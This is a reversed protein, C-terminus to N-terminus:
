PHVSASSASLTAVPQGPTYSELHMQLSGLVPVDSKIQVILRHEDDTFYVEAKGGKGFLGKTQFTPQVVVTNFMGAPTTITEKRLVKLVVPNGDRKFYRNFTYTKGVELPLIRALYIFSIEDLPMDTHLEGSEGNDTRVWRRKEPFFEFTRHREYRIEKQDQKFRRTVLREVDLWSQFHDNVKAFLVGGKVRMHLHYTPRGHVTDIAAVELSGKGVEGFPSVSVRYTLREGPGFPVKGPTPVSEEVEVTDQQATLAPPLLLALLAARLLNKM